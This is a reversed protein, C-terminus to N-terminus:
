GPPSMIWGNMQRKGAVRLPDSLFYRLGDVEYELEAFVGRIRPRPTNPGCLWVLPDTPRDSWKAQRFDRSAAEASWLRAARPAPEAQVKLQMKPNAGEHRWIVKPMPLDHIQHRAFVALTGLARTLDPLVTPGEHQQALNHGANPVYLVWKESELDDWYLNLADQTWYPDNTGNVIMIPQKLRARYVWPDVMAWLKKAEPTDPMPVLGRKTYDAIM